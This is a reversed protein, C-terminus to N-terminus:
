KRGRKRTPQTGDPGHYGAPAYGKNVCYDCYWTEPLPPKLNVCGLHFWQYKCKDSDCGVMEGFSTQQCFCYITKDEPEEEVEPGEAAGEAENEVDDDGEADEEEEEKQELKVASRRGRSGIHIQNQLRSRGAAPAPTPTLAIISPSPSPLKISTTSPRADLRRRKNVPTPTAPSLNPVEPLTITATLRDNVEKMASRGASGGASAISPAPASWSFGSTAGAAAATVSASVPDADGQAVLVKALDYDLRAKARAILATMRQALAIKEASLQDLLAYSAAVKASLSTSNPIAPNPTQPSPSPASSSPPTHRICHKIYKSTEKQIEHNLEQCKTEKHKIEALLFQVENPLNDLSAIYEAAIAGAEELNPVTTM